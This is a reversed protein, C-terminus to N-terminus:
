CGRCIRLGQDISTGNQQTQSQPQQERQEPQSSRERRALDPPLDSMKPQRHGIPAQQAVASGSVLLAALLVPLMGQGRMFVEKASFDVGLRRGLERLCRRASASVNDRGEAQRCGDLMRGIATGPVLVAHFLPHDPENEEPAFIPSSGHQRLRPQSDRRGKEQADGGGRLRGIVILGIRRSAKRVARFTLPHASIRHILSVV